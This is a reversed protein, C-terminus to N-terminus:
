ITLFIATKVRNVGMRDPALTASHSNRGSFIDLCPYNWTKRSASVLQEDGSPSGFGDDCSPWPVTEEAAPIPVSSDLAGLAGEFPHLSSPQLAMAKLSSRTTKMGVFRETLSRDAPPEQGLVEPDRKYTRQESAIM